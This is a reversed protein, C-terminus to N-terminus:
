NVSKTFHFFVHGQLIEYESEDYVSFFNTTKAYPVAWFNKWTFEKMPFEKVIDKKNEINQIVIKAAQKCSEPILSPNNLYKALAGDRVPAFQYRQYIVEKLGLNSTMRNAIVYGVGLQGKYVTVKKGDVKATVPYMTQNGSEACIIAALLKEESVKKHTYYEFHMTNGKVKYYSSSPQVVGKEDVTLYFDKYYASKTKNKGAQLMLYSSKFYYYKDKIKKLGKVGKGNKDFYYTNRGVKVFGKTMVGKANFYYKDKGIQTLGTQMVGKKDFYYQKGDITKWGTQMVGKANMYYTKKKVMVFGTQMRGKSDFYYTKSGIKKLGKIPKNNKYYYRYTGKTVWGKKVTTTETATNEAALAREPMAAALLMLSCLSIWVCIGLKRM